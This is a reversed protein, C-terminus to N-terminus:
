WLNKRLSTGRVHLADAISSGFRNVFEEGDEGDGDTAGIGGTAESRLKKLSM